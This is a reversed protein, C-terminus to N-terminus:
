INIKSNQKYKTYLQWCFTQHNHILLTKNINIYIYMYM